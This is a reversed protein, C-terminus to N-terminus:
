GVKLYLHIVTSIFSFWFQAEKHFETKPKKRELDAVSAYYPKCNEIDIYFNPSGNSKYELASIYEITYYHTVMAITEYRKKYDKIM